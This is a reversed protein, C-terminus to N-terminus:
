NFYRSSHGRLEPRNWGIPTPKKKKMKKKKNEEEGIKSLKPPAINVDVRAREGAIDIEWLAERDCIWDEEVVGSRPDNIFGLGVM